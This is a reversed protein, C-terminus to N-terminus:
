EYIPNALRRRETSAGSNYVTKLNQQANKSGFEAGRSYMESAKKLSKRTGYGGQHLVGLSNYAEALFKTTLQLSHPQFALPSRTAREFYEFALADNPSVVEGVYYMYGLKYAALLSGNDAATSYAMEAKIYDPPSDNFHSEAIEFFQNAEELRLKIKKTAADDKVINLGPLDFSFSDLYEANRPVLYILSTYFVLVFMFAAMSSTGSRNKIWVIKDLHEEFLREAARIMNQAKRYYFYNAFLAIFLFPTFCIAAILLMSTLGGNLAQPMHSNFFAITALYVFWLILTFSWLKRYITWAFMLPLVALPLALMAVDPLLKYKSPGPYFNIALAIVTFLIISFNLIRMLRRNTNIWSFPNLKASQRFENCVVLYYEITDRPSWFLNRQGLFARLLEAELREQKFTSKDAGHKRKNGSNSAYHAHINFAKDAIVAALREPCGNKSISITIENESLGAQALKIAYDLMVDWFVSDAFRDESDGGTYHSDSYNESQGSNSRKGGQEGSPGTGFGGNGSRTNNESLIKYAEAAQHFREKAASSNNCRDPHWKMAERRYAKKIEEQTANKPVGLIDHPDM